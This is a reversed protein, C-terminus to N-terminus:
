KTPPAVSPTDSFQGVAADGQTIFPHQLAQEATPRDDPHLRLLTGIFSIFLEDDQVYYTSLSYVALPCYACLFHMPLAHSCADFNRVTHLRHRLPSPKPQLLEVRGARDREFVVGNAFYKHAHRGRTLMDEPFPGFIGV